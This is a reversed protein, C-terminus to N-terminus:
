LVPEYAWDVDEGALFKKMQELLLDSEFRFLCGDSLIRLEIDPHQRVRELYTDNPGLLSKLKATHVKLGYRVLPLTALIACIQPISSTFGDSNSVIDDTGVGGPQMIGDSFAATYWLSLRWEKWVEDGKSLLYKMLIDCGDFIAYPFTRSQVKIHLTIISVTDEPFGFEKLWTRMEHVPAATIYEVSWQAPPCDRWIFWVRPRPTLFTPTYKEGVKLIDTAL